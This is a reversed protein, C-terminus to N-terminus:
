YKDDALIIVVNPPTAVLTSRLSWFPALLLLAFFPRSLKM